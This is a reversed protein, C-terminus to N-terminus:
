YIWGRVKNENIIMTETTEEEITKSQIWEKEIKRNQLDTGETKKLFFYFYIFHM